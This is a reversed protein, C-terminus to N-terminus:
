ITSVWQKVVWSGNKDSGLREIKENEKLSAIVRSVTAKSKGLLSAVRDLSAYSDQTLIELVMQYDNLTQDSIFVKGPRFVEFLFRGNLNRYRYSIKRERFLEFVKSFGTGFHEIYDGFYLVNNIRENKDVPKLMKSAFDEPKGISPFPGPNFIAIRNPYVAIDHSFPAAYFAHGFANVILERVALLPIEEETLRQIGFHNPEVKYNLKSMVYQVSLDILEFINGSARQMDLFASGKLDGLLSLRCVLPRDKSFLAEGAKNIHGDQSYLHLFRLADEMGAYPHNIRSLRNGKEMLNKISAEDMSTLLAPSPSNEWHDYTNQAQILMETLLSTPMVDSREGNRIYYIGKSRYPKANGRFDVEIFKKKNIDEKTEISFFPTPEISSNIKNALDSETKKGVEVGRIEGGDKIGFYITGMGKKNLIAGMDKMAEEKESLSEKFETFEDERGITM